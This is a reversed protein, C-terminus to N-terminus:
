AAEKEPLRLVREATCLWIRGPEEDAWRTGSAWPSFAPMIWCSSQQVFAPCKL